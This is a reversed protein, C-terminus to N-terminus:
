KIGPYNPTPITGDNDELIKQYIEEIRDRHMKAYQLESDAQKKLESTMGIERKVVTSPIGQSGLFGAFSEIHSDGCVFIIEKGLFPNLQGLWYQERIPIDKVIELGASLLDRESDPVRDWLKDILQTWCLRSQYGIKMRTKLDPDCLAHEVNVKQAIIKTFYDQPARNVFAARALAHESYEEGVVAPKYNQIAQELCLRYTTHYATEPPISQVSHEVGILYFM